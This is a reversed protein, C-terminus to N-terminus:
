SWPKVAWQDTQVFMQKIIWHVICYNRTFHVLVVRLMQIFVHLFILSSYVVLQVARFIGLSRGYRTFGECQANANADTDFSTLPLASLLNTLTGKVMPVINFKSAFTSTRKVSSVNSASGSICVVILTSFSTGDFLIFTEVDIDMCIRCLSHYYGYWTKHVASCDYSICTNSMNHDIWM